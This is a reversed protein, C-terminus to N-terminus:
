SDRQTGSESGSSRPSIVVLFAFGSAQVVRSALQFRSALVRQCPTLGSCAEGAADATVPEVAEAVASEVSGPVSDHIAAHDVAVFEGLVV